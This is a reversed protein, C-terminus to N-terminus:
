RGDLPVGTADLTIDVEYRGDKRRVQGKLLCEMRGTSGRLSRITAGEPTMVIQGKVNELRYPFRRYEISAGGDFNMTLSVSRKTPGDGGRRLDAVFDARGRPAFEDWLRRYSEPLLTYIDKSFTFGDVAIRVNYDAQDGSGAVRGTVTVAASGHRGRVDLSIAGDEALSIRGTVDKLPVSWQPATLSLGRLEISGAVTVKGAADRRVTGTVSVPGSPKMRASFEAYTPGWARALAEAMPLVLGDIKLEMKYPSTPEYGHYRGQLTFVAGGAKALRGTLRKIQVGQRDVVLEGKVGVLKVGGEEPPLEMAVDNLRLNLREPVGATTTTVPVHAQGTWHVQGTLKYRRRWKRYKRPLANDLRELGISGDVRTVGTALDVTGSGRITPKADPPGEFQLRYVGESADVFLAVNLGQWRGVPLAQGDELDERILEGNRLRISPLSSLDPGAANSRARGVLPFLSMVNLKGTRVDEVLTVRPEACVIETPALRGRFLLSWPRHHLVVTGAEFFPSSTDGPLYVRLNEVRIGGFLSFQARTLEVRGGAVRRTLYAVVKEKVRADNTLEWYGYVMLLLAAFALM